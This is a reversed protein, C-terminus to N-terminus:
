QTNNKHFGLNTYFYKSYMQVSGFCGLLFWFLITQFYIVGCAAISSVWLIFSKGCNSWIVHNVRYKMYEAEYLHVDM